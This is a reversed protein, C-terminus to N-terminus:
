DNGIVLVDVNPLEQLLRDLPEIQTQDRLGTLQGSLRFFCALLGFGFPHPLCDALHQRPRLM